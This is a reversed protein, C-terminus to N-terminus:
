NPKSQLWFAWNQKMTRRRKVDILRFFFYVPDWGPKVPHGPDRTSGGPRGPKVLGVGSRTKAEVRVPVLGPDVRRAPGPKLVSTMDVSTTSFIFNYFFFCGARYLTIQIVSLCRIITWSWHKIYNEKPLWKSSSTQHLTSEIVIHWKSKPRGYSNSM